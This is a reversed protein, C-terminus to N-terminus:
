GGKAYRSSVRWGARRLFELTPRLMAGAQALRVPNGLARARWSQPPVLGACRYVARPPFYIYRAFADLIRSVLPALLARQWDHLRRTAEECHTRAYAAHKAEDRSHIRAVRYVVASLTIEETAQQLRHNLRDPLEEGMVVMAWFLASRSPLAWRGVADVLRGGGHRAVPLAIGSRQMLELFMLSHGAEERLERLFRARREPADTRYALRALREMFLAELWLGAELLHAYEYHSLRRRQELPLAEFEPVGALSLAQPPLWWCARDVGQWDIQALPDLYQAFSPEVPHMFTSRSHAPPRGMSAPDSAIYRSPLLKCDVLSEIQEDIEEVLKGHRRMEAARFLLYEGVAHRLDLKGVTQSKM